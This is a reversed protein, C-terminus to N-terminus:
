RSKSKEVNNIMNLMMENTRLKYDLLQNEYEKLEQFIHFTEFKLSEYYNNKIINKHSMESFNNYPNIGLMQLELKKAEIKGELRNMDHINNDIYTLLGTSTPNEIILCKDKKLEFLSKIYKTSYGDDFELYGNQFEMNLYLGNVYGVYSHNFKDADELTLEPIYLDRNEKINLSNLLSIRFEDYIKKIVESKDLDGVYAKM